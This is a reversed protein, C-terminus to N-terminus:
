IFKALWCSLIIAIFTCFLAIPIAYFLKKVKTGAFYITAIYFISDTCGIIISACNAIYSDAGYNAYINELVALSGSGSFPRIIILECLETPIGLMILPPSFIASIITTLGSQNMLEIALFIAVLYPFITKILDFANKTGDIFCNYCNVKKIIGYILLGLILLPIILASINM